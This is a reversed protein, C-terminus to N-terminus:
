SLSFRSLKHSRRGEAMARAKPSCQTLTSWFSVGVAPQCFTMPDILVTHVVGGRNGMFVGVVFTPRGYDGHRERGSSQGIQESRIKKLDAYAVTLVGGSSEDHFSFRDTGVILLNGSANGGNLTRLKIKAGAELGQLFQKAADAKGSPSAAKQARCTLTLVAIM